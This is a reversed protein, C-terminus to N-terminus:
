CPPGLLVSKWLFDVVGKRKRSWLQPAHKNLARLLQTKFYPHPLHGSHRVERFYQRILVVLEERTVQQFAELKLGFTRWLVKKHVTRRKEAERAEDVAAVVNNM